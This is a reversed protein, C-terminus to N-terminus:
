LHVALIRLKKNKGLKICIDINRTGINIGINIEKMSYM